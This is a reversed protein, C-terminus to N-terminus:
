ILVISISKEKKEVEVTLGSLAWMTSFFVPYLMLLSRSARKKIMVLAAVLVLPAAAILLPFVLLWALGLPLYLGVPRRGPRRAKMRFLLPIM